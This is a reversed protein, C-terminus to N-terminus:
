QYNCKREKNAIISLILPQHVPLSWIAPSDPNSRVITQCILFGLWDNFSISFYMSSNYREKIPLEYGFWDYITIM